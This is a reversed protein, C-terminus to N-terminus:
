GVKSGTMNMDTRDTIRIFLHLEFGHFFLLCKVFFFTDAFSARPVLSSKKFPIMMLLLM